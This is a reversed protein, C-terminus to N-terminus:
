TGTVARNLDRLLGELDLHHREAGMAVTAIGILACDSCCLGRSELVAATAPHHRLMDDIRTEATIPGKAAKQRM